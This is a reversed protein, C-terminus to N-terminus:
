PCFQPEGPLCTATTLLQQEMPVVPSHGRVPDLSPVPQGGVGARGGVCQCQDPDMEQRTRLKRIIFHHHPSLLFPKM